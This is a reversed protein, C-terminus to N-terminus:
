IDYRTFLESISCHKQKRLAKAQTWQHEIPNLQPSDPPLFLLIHGAHRISNELALRKHFSVNDMVIVSKKPLQPLLDPTIWTSFIDSNVNGALLTM